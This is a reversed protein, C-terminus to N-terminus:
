EKLSYIAHMCNIQMSALKSYNFELKINTKKKINIFELKTYQRSVWCLGLNGKTVHTNQLSFSINISQNIAQIISQHIKLNECNVTLSM